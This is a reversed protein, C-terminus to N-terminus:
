AGSRSSRTSISRHSDRSSTRRRPGIQKMGKNPLTGENFMIESMAEFDITNAEQAAQGIARSLTAASDGAAAPGAGMNPVTATAGSKGASVGASRLKMKEIFPPMVKANLNVPMPAYGDSTILDRGADTM